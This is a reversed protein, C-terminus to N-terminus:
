TRPVFAIYFRLRRLYCDLYKIVVEIISVKAVSLQVKIDNGNFKLLFSFIRVQCSNRYM